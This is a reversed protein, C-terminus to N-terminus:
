HYPFKAQIKQLKRSKKWNQTRNCKWCVQSNQVWRNTKPQIVQLALKPWKSALTKCLDGNRIYMSYVLIFTCQIEAPFINYYLGSYWHVGINPVYPHYPFERCNKCNKEPLRFLLETLIAAFAMKRAGVAACTRGMAVQFIEIWHPSSCSDFFCYPSVILDEWNFKLTNLHWAAENRVSKTTDLLIWNKTPSTGDPKAMWNELGTTEFDIGPALAPKLFM